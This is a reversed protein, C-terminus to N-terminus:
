SFGRFTALRALRALKMSSLTGLYLMHKSESNGEVDLADHAVLDVDDDSVGQHGKRDSESPHSTIKVLILGPGLFDQQVCHPFVFDRISQLTRPCIM